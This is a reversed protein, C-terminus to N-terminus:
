SSTLECVVCGAGSKCPLTNSSVLVDIGLARTTKRGVNHVVIAAVRRAGEKRAERAAAKVTNGTSVLDDVIIANVPLAKRLPKEWVSTASLREKRLLIFQAGIRKAVSKAMDRAGEDPAIVVANRKMKAPLSGMIQPMVDISKAGLWRVVRSSHPNVLVVKDPGAEKIMACVAKAGAAEGQKPHDQRGYAFYPILLTVRSGLEKLTRCAFVLEILADASPGTNGVLLVDGKAGAPVSLRTEGDPFRRVKITRGRLSRVLHSCSPLVLTKM